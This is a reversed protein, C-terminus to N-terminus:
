LVKWAEKLETLFPFLESARSDSLLKMVEVAGVAAVLFAAFIAPALRTGGLAEVMTPDDDRMSWATKMAKRIVLSKGFLGIFLCLLLGGVISGIPSLRSIAIQATMAVLGAGYLRRYFLWAFSFSLAAFSFSPLLAGDFQMLRWLDRYDPWDPGVFRAILAEETEGAWRVEEPDLPDQPPAEQPLPAFRRRVSSPRPAGRRGFPTPERPAM